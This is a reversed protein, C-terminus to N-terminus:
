EIEIGKTQLLAVLDAVSDLGTAEEPTMHYGFIEEVGVALAVTGLSDWTDIDARRLGNTAEEEDILFVDCLLETLQARPPM